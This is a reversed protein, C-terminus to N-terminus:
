LLASLMGYLAQETEEASLSCEHRLQYWVQVGTLTYLQALLLKREDESRQKLQLAFARELWERHSARAIDIIAHLHPQRAEQAIGRLMREGGVEYYVVLGHAITALDGVPPEIRQQMARRFAEQSVRQAM